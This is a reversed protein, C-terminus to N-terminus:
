VNTLLRESIRLSQKSLGILDSVSFGAETERPDPCQEM